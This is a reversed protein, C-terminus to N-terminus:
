AGAVAFGGALVGNAQLGDLALEIFIAFLEFLGFGGIFFQGAGAFHGDGGGAGFDFGEAGADAVHLHLLGHRLQGFHSGAHDGADAAGAVRKVTELVHDFGLALFGGAANAHGLVIQVDGANVDFFGLLLRQGILGQGIEGGLFADGEIWRGPDVRGAVGGGVLVMPGAALSCAYFRKTHASDSLRKGPPRERELDPGGGASHSPCGCGESDETESFGREPQETKAQLGGDEERQGGALPEAADDVGLMERGGLLVSVRLASGQDAGERGFKLPPQM